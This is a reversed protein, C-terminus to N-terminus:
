LERFEKFLADRITEKSAEYRNSVIGFLASIDPNSNGSQYLWQTGNTEGVRRLFISIRPVAFFEDNAYDINLYYDIDLVMKNKIVLKAKFSKSERDFDIIELNKHSLIELATYM